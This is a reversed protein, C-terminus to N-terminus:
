AFVVTCQEGSEEIFSINSFISKGGESKQFNLQSFLKQFVGKLLYLFPRLSWRYTNLDTYTDASQLQFPPYIGIFNHM